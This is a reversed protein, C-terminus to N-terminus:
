HHDFCTTGFPGKKSVDGTWQDVQATKDINNELQFLEKPAAGCGYYHTVRHSTGKVTLQTIATPFDTCVRGTCKEESYDPLSMFKTREFESVLTRIAPPSIQATHAGEEKVNAKGEYEIRGDGHITVAYAPCSGFCGTRELRISVTKLDADSISTLDNDASALGIKLAVAFFSVALLVAIVPSRGVIM